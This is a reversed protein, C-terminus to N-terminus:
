VFMTEMIAIEQHFHAFNLNSKTKMIRLIFPWSPVVQSNFLQAKLRKWATLSIEQFEIKLIHKKFLSLKLRRENPKLCINHPTANNVYAQDYNVM